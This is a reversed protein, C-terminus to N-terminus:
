NFSQGSYFTSHLLQLIFLMILLNPVFIKVMIINLENKQSNFLCNLKSIRRTCERLEIM